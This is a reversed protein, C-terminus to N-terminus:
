SEDRERISEDREQIPADLVTRFAHFPDPATHLLGQLDRTWADVSEVTGAVEEPTVTGLYELISTMRPVTESLVARIFAAVSINSSDALRVLTAHLDDPLSITLRTTM